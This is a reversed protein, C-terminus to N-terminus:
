CVEFSSWGMVVRLILEVSGWESDGCELCVGNVLFCRNELKVAWTLEFLGFAWEDFM